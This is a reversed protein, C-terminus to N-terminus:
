SLSLREFDDDDMVLRIEKEITKHYQEKIEEIPKTTQQSSGAFIGYLIFCLPFIETLLL